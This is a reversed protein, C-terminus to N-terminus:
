EDAADSTYLLCPIVYRGEEDRYNEIPDNYILEAPAGAQPNGMIFVDDNPDTFRVGGGPIAPGMENIDSLGGRAANQMMAIGVPSTISYQGFLGGGGVDGSQFFEQATQGTQEPITRNVIERLLDDEIELM